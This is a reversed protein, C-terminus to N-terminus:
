KGYQPAEWNGLELLTMILIRDFMELNRYAEHRKEADKPFGDLVGDCIIHLQYNFRIKEVFDRLDM